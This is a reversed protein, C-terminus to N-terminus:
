PQVQKPRYSHPSRRLSRSSQTSKAALMLIASQGVARVANLHLAANFTERKPRLVDAAFVVGSGNSQLIILVILMEGRDACRPGLWPLSGGLRARDYPVDALSSCAVTLHLMSSCRGPHLTAVILIEFGLFSLM